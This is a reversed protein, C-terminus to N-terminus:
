QEVAEPRSSAHLSEARDSAAREGEPHEGGTLSDPFSGFRDLLFDALAWRLGFAGVVVPLLVASVWVVCSM